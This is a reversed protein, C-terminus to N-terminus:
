ILFRGNNENLNENPERATIAAAITHAAVNAKACVGDDAGAFASVFGAAFVAQTM